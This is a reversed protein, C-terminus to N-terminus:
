SNLSGDLLEIRLRLFLICCGGNVARLRDRGQPISGALEWPVQAQFDNIFSSITRNTTFVVFNPIGVEETLKLAQNVADVAAVLASFYSKVFAAGDIMEMNRNLILIAVGFRDATKARKVAVHVQYDMSQKTQPSHLSRWFFAKLKPPLNVSWFKRWFNPEVISSPSPSRDTDKDYKQLLFYASKITFTGYKNAHWIWHDKTGRLDKPPRRIQRLKEEINAKPFIITDDAFLAYSIVPGRRNLKIGRIINRDLCGNVFKSMANAMFLFLYPSLSDGQRLGRSPFSTRTKRGNVLVAYSVTRVCKPILVIHTQNLAKLLYGKHFFQKVAETVERKVCQWFNQYFLAPYGDPGPAKLRGMSFIANQIEEDLVEKLLENNMSESIVPHVWQLINDDEETPQASYVRSLFKIVEEEIGEQNQIWSRQDDRLM